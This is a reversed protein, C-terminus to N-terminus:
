SFTACGAEIDALAKAVEPGYLPHALADKIAMEARKKNPPVCIWGISPFKRGGDDGNNNGECSVIVSDVFYRPIEYDYRTVLGIVKGGSKVVGYGVNSFGADTEAKAAASRHAGTQRMLWHFQGGSVERIRM